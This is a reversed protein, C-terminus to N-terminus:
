SGSQLHDDCLNIIFAEDPHKALAGKTNEHLGKEFSCLVDDTNLKKFDTYVSIRVFAHPSFNYTKGTEVSSIYSGPISENSGSATKIIENIRSETSEAWTISEESPDVGFALASKSAVLMCLM